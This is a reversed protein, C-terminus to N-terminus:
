GAEVRLHAEGGPGLREFIVQAPHAPLAADLEEEFSAVNPVLTDVDDDPVLRESTQLPQQGFVQVEVPPALAPAGGITVDEELIHAAAFLLLLKEGAGAILKLFADATEHSRELESGVLDFREATLVGRPGSPERVRCATLSDLQEASQSGRAPVPEHLGAA